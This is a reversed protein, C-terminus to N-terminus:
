IFLRKQAKEPIAVLKCQGGLTDYVL